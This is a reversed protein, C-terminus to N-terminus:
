MNELLWLYIPTTFRLTVIGNCGMTGYFKDQTHQQTGNFDHEYVALETFVHGLPIDDFLLDSIKVCHDHLINNQNDVKTHEFTKGSMTISLCHELDEDSFGHSIEQAQNTLNGRYIIGDDLKVTLLLDPSTSSAKFKIVTQEM